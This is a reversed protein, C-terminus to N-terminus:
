PNSCVWDQLTPPAQQSALVRERPMLCTKRSAETLAEAMQKRLPRLTALRVASSSDAIFRSHFGLIACLSVQNCRVWVKCTKLGSWKHPSLMDLSLQMCYPQLKLRPSTCLLCTHALIIRLAVGFVPSSLRPRYIWSTGPTFYRPRVYSVHIAESLWM